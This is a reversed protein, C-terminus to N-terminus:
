SLWTGPQPDRHLKWSMQLHMTVTTKPTPTAGKKTELHFRLFVVFCWLVNYFFVVFCWLFVV